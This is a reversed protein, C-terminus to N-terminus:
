VTQKLNNYYAGCEDERGRVVRRDILNGRVETVVTYQGELHHCDYFLIIVWDYIKDLTHARQTNSYMVTFHWNAKQSHLIPLWAKNEPNFQIPTILPLQGANAKDRYETDLKLLLEVSPKKNEESFASTDNKLKKNREIYNSSLWNKIAQLRKEGMGKIQELQGTHLSNELSALTEIHLKDYIRQALGRGVTPIVQFLAIPDSVGQLNDLRLMRGTTTYEYILLAIGMGITPLHVLGKIGERELLARLDEDSNEITIAANLYAQCRYHNAHQAKLIAAIERLKQSVEDNFTIM